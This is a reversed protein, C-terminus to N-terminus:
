SQSGAIAAGVVGLVVTILGIEAQRTM